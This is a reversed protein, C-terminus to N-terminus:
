VEYEMRVLEACAAHFCPLPLNAEFLVRKSLAYASSGALIALSVARHEDGGFGRMHAHVSPGGRRVDDRDMIDDHILLATQLLEVALVADFLSDEPVDHEFCQAAYYALAPRIRKAPRLTLEAVADFLDTSDPSVGSVPLEDRWESFRRRLRADVLSAFRGLTDSALAAAQTANLSDSGM